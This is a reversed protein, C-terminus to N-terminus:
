AVKPGPWPPFFRPQHFDPRAGPVAHAALYRREQGQGHIAYANVRSVGPPLYSAPVVARGRWAGGSIETQYSVAIERQMLQRIGSFRLALYHGHPGFELELYSDAENALFLEVVEYEWLGDTRGPTCPPVPDNHFGATIEVRLGSPTLSFTLEGRESALAQEGNWLKDIVLSFFPADM